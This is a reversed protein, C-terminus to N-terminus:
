ALRRCEAPYGQRPLELHRKSADNIEHLHEEGGVEKIQDQYIGDLKTRASELQSPSLVESVVTYGILTVDEAAKDIQTEAAQYEKVGFARVDSM